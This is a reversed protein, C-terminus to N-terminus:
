KCQNRPQHGPCMATSLTEPRYIGNGLCIIISPSLEALIMAVICLFLAIMTPYHRHLGQTTTSHRWGPRKIHVMECQRWKQCDCINRAIRHISSLM